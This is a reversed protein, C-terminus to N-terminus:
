TKYSSRSDTYGFLSNTTPTTTAFYKCTSFGHHYFAITVCAAMGSGTGTTVHYYSLIISMSAPDIKKVILM